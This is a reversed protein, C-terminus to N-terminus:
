KKEGEVEKEKQKEKQKEKKLSASDIGLEVFVHSYHKLIPRGRGKPGAKMRKLRISKSAWIKHVFTEPLKEEPIKSQSLANSSASKLLKALNKNCGYNSHFLLESAKLVPQLRILDLVRNIKEVSGKLQTKAKSVVSVEKKNKNKAM